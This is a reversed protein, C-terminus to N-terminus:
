LKVKDFSSNNKKVFYEHVKEGCNGDMNVALTVLEEKQRKRVDELEGNAVKRMFNGFQFYRCERQVFADAVNVKEFGDQAKMLRGFSEESLSMYKVKYEGTGVNLILIAGDRARQAWVTDDDLAKCVCCTGMFPPYYNGDEHIVGDWFTEAMSAFEGTEKDFRWMRDSFGPAMLIYRGMNIILGMAREVNNINPFTNHKPLPYERVTNRSLDVSVLRGNGHFEGLYLSDGDRCVGAYGYGEAGVQYFTYRGDKMYFRLIKNTYGATIWLSEGDCAVGAVPSTSANQSRESALERMCDEHVVWEKESRRYEYIGSGYVSGAVWFIRDRYPYPWDWWLSSGNGKWELYGEEKQDLPYTVPASACAPSLILEDDQALLYAYSRAWNPQGAFRHVYEVQEWDEGACLLGNYLWPVMWWKGNVQVVDTFFVRKQEEKTFPRAVAADLIFMPKGAAGVLNVVSTASDGIYGDVIAITKEIDPTQDLVGIGSQLFYEVLEQYMPLLEPHMSRITSELLPHPRWIVAVVPNEKVWEFCLWIRRLYHKGFSLFYSLSTNLMVCKREGIVQAWEAPMRKNREELTCYEQCLSIVRDLKPSGLAVVKDYFPTGEFGSKFLESQVVIYDAYRYASLMKHAESVMGGTLYYPIYVLTKTYKKLEYSFYETNIRTVRNYEDYPNHIFIFEPYEEELHYESYHIIPVYEPFRDGEYCPNWQQTQADFKSYPLPMVLAECNEDKDFAMWVSELSDWMEAKYPMFVAQYVATIQALQDRVNSIIENLRSLTNDKQACSDLAANDATNGELNAHGDTSDCISLQYLEECYQELKEVLDAREPLEKELRQGISIAAQQCDELVEPMVHPQELIGKRHIQLQLDLITNLKKRTTIRLMYKNKEKGKRDELLSGKLEIVIASDTEQM